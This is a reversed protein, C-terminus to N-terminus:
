QAIVFVCVSLNSVLHNFMSLFQFEKRVEFEVARHFVNVAEQFEENGILADGLVLLGEVSETQDVHRKAVVVSEKGNGADLHVQAIRLLLNRSFAGMSNEKDLELAQYFYEVAGDINKKELAAEGRSVKKQISKVFKHSAKCDKHEPDLKLGSRFHELAVNFEGLKTYSDGRLCYAEIHNPFAKLLKGTDSIVGYYDQTQYEAICKRYLIDPVANPELFHLVERYHALATAYDESAFTSSAVSLHEHCNFAEVRLNRQEDSWQDVTHIGTLHRYEEVAQECQGLLTLLKAKEFRYTISKAQDVVQVATTISELAKNFHKMRMQLRYLKHFNLGNTPELSIASQYHSIAANYDRQAIAEEALSRLKGPSYASSSSSSEQAAVTFPVPTSQLTWLLGLTVFTPPKM